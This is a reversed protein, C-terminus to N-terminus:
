PLLRNLNFLDARRFPEALAFKGHSVLGYQLANAREMGVHLGLGKQYDGPMQSYGPAVHDLLGAPVIKELAKVSFTM